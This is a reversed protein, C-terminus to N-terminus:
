AANNDTTGRPCLEGEVKQVWVVLTGTAPSKAFRATAERWGPMLAFGAAELSRSALPCDSGIEILTVIIM